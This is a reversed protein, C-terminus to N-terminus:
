IGSTSTEILYLYAEVFVLDHPAHSTYFDWFLFNLSDFPVATVLGWTHGLVGRRGFEGLLYGDASYKELTTPHASRVKKEGLTL